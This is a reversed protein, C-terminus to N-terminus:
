RRVPVRRRRMRMAAPYLKDCHVQWQAVSKIRPAKTVFSRAGAALHYTNGKDHRLFAWVVMGKQLWKPQPRNSPGVMRPCLRFLGYSFRIKKGVALGSGTKKVFVVRAEVVLHKRRWVKRGWRNTRNCWTTQEQVSLVKIRVFEPAFAQAMCARHRSRAVVQPPLAGIVFVGSVMVALSLSVM